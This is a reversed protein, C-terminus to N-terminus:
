EKEKSIEKYEEFHQCDKSYREKCDYSEGIAKLIIFRATKAIKIWMRQAKKKSILALGATIAEKGCAKSYDLEKSFRKNRIFGKVMGFVYEVPALHPWYQPLGLMELGYLTAARKNESALHISANDITIIAKGICGKFSSDIYIRLLYLFLWFIQGTVTEDMLVGIWSGTSM